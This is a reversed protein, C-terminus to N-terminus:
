ITNSSLKKIKGLTSIDAIEIEPNMALTKIILRRYLSSSSKTIILIPRENMSNLLGNKNNPM